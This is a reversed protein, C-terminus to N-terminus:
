TRRTSQPVLIKGVGIGRDPILIVYTWSCRKQPVKIWSAKSVSSSRRRCKNGTLRKQETRRTKTLVSKQPRQLRQSRRLWCWCSKQLLFFHLLQFFFFGFTKIESFIEQWQYLHWNKNWVLFKNWKEKTKKMKLKKWRKLM